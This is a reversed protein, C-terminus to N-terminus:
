RARREGRGSTARREARVADAWEAAKDPTMALAQQLDDLACLADAGNEGRAAAHIARRLAESKSVKWKRAIGELSRVTEVDVAYTAKIKPTAMGYIRGYKAATPLTPPAM